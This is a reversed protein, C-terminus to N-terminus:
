RRSFRKSRANFSLPALLLHYINASDITLFGFEVRADRTFAQELVVVNGNPRLEACRELAKNVTDVLHDSFNLALYAKVLKQDQAKMGIEITSPEGLVVSDPFSYTVNQLTSDIIPVQKGDKYQVKPLENKNSCSFIAMLGIAVISHTIKKVMGGFMCRGGLDGRDGGMIKMKVDIEEL